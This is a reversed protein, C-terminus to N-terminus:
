INTFIHTDMEITYIFFPNDDLNIIVGKEFSSVSWIFEVKVVGLYDGNDGRPDIPV